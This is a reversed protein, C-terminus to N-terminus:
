FTPIWPLTKYSSIRNIKQSISFAKFVNMLFKKKYLHTCVILNLDNLYYRSLYTRFEVQINNKIAFMLTTIPNPVIIYDSKILFQVKLDGKKHNIWQFLKIEILLILLFPMKKNALFFVFPLFDDIKTNFLWTSTGWKM